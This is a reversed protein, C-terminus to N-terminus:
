SQSQRMEHVALFGAVSASWSFGRARTRAARRREAEPRDLLAVVGAALDDGPAAVGAEGVVEPLASAEDVVVPTGCALAELAALGFTEIPGPALVVDATALLAAVAARDPVFSVFEVPEGRARRALRRRLPGDGAVVLVADYGRARLTRLAEVSRDPRKETSLRGCHVILLQGPKAYSSRLV